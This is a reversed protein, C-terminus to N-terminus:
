GRSNGERERQIAEFVEFCLFLKAVHYQLPKAAESIDDMISRLKFQMAWNEHQEWTM